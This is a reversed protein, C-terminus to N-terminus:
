IGSEPDAWLREGLAAVRPWLKGEVAIGQVQEAWMAAEGGLINQEYQEESGEFSRYVKRPSNDYILQWGTVITSTLANSLILRMLLHESVLRIFFILCFNVKTHHVGIIEKGLGVPTDVISITNTM